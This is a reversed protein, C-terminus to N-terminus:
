YIIDRQRRVEVTSFDMRDVLTEDNVIANPRLDHVYFSDSNVIAGGRYFEIGFVVARYNVNTNNVARYVVKIYKSKESAPVIRIIQLEIGNFDWTRSSPSASRASAVRSRGTGSRTEPRWVRKMSRIKNQREVDKKSREVITLPLAIYIKGTAPDKIKVSYGPERHLVKVPIDENYNVLCGEVYSGSNAARTKLLDACAKKERELFFFSEEASVPHQLLIIVILSLFLSLGRM